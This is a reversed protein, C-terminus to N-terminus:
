APALADRTEEPDLSVGAGKPPITTAHFRKGSV